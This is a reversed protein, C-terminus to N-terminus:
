KSLKWSGVAEPFASDLEQYELSLLSLSTVAYKTSIGSLGGKNWLIHNPAPSGPYKPSPRKTVLVKERALGIGRLTYNGEGSPLMSDM